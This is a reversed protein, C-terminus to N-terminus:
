WGGGTDHPTRTRIAACVQCDCEWEQDYRYGAWAMEVIARLREVEIFRARLDRVAVLKKVTDQFIDREQELASYDSYRVYEGDECEIFRWESAKTQSQADVLRDGYRKVEDM